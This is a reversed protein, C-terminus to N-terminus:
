PAARAERRDGANGQRRPSGQRAAADRASQLAGWGPAYQLAEDYKALAESWAHEQALVDGWAKLPDAWHPSKQNAERLKALALDLDGRRALAIGWSYYGTPISPALTVAESFSVQARSWDGRLDQVNGRYRYCDVFKVTGVAALAADAKAPQGSKEYAVAALCMTSPNHNMVVPNAYTKAFADWHAAATKFDGAEEALQARILESAAVESINKEDISATTLRMTASEVDHLLAETQALNLVENGAAQASAGARPELDALQEARVASLDRLAGDLSEYTDEPAKGPRGGATKILLEGQRVVGEEDGTAALANMLNVYGSWYDPKLRLAERYLPLAENLAGKSGRSVTANALYNLMAPREAPDAAPYAEQVFQIAEENRGRTSLYAAWLAPQSEGYLYEGAATLLRELSRGEGIFTKPWIGTGRVTLALSGDATQVLDGSLHQDHGLHSRLLQELGAISLGTEPTELSIERTWANSLARRQASGRTSAQIRTLVDLLGSAIVKGSLGSASLAPPAEFPDIVVRRSTVAAGTLTVLGLGILTVMLAFACQSFFRFWTGVRRLRSDRESQLQRVKLDLLNSQKRLCISAEQAVESDQLTALAAIGASLGAGSPLRVRTTKEDDSKELVKELIETDGLVSDTM